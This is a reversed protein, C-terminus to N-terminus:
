GETSGKRCRWWHSIGGFLSCVLPITLLAVWAPHPQGQLCMGYFWGLVGTAYLTGLFACVRRGFLLGGLAYYVPITLALALEAVWAGSMLCTVIYALVVLVPYPFLNWARWARSKPRGCGCHKDAWDAHADQWSDYHRDNVHVGDWGVHVEDGRGADRVHVGDRWSIHVSDGKEASEVHIGDFGIHVKDEAPRDNPCAGSKGTSGAAEGAPSAAASGKDDSSASSGEGASAPDDEDSSAGDASEAQTAASPAKPVSTSMGSASADQQGEESAETEDDPVDHFLLDDLSVGYLQALAILNDTDPSSESREWKSVAQRSVGLETALAEQSLGAARRRDVLRKAMDVNM